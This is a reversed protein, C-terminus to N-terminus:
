PNRSLFLLSNLIMFRIVSNDCCRPLLIVDVRATIHRLAGMTRRLVGLAAWILGWGNLILLLSFRLDPNELEASWKSDVNCLSALAM